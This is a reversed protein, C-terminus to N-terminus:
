LLIAYFLGLLFKAINVEVTNLFNLSFKEFDNAGYRAHALRSWAYKFLYYFITVSIIHM